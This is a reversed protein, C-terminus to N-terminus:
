PLNERQEALREYYEEILQEYKPLFEENGANKIQQLFREPLNGWLQKLFEDRSQQEVEAVETQGLRSTSKEPGQGDAQAQNGGPKGPRREGKKKGSSSSAAKKRQIAIVVALDDIIETQLRQTKASTKQGAILEEVSRMKQGIRSLPDSQEGLEVDEGQGLQELGDPETEGTTDKTGSEKPKDKSKKPLPIDDLGDLLDSDLDGLLQKNLENTDVGKSTKDQAATEQASVPRVDAVSMWALGWLVPLLLVTKLIKRRVSM